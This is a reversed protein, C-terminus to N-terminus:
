RIRLLLDYRKQDNNLEVTGKKKLALFERGDPSSFTERVYGKDVDFSRLYGRKLMDKTKIVTGKVEWCVSEFICAAPKFYIVADIMANGKGAELARDLAEQQNPMQGTLVSRCDRGEFTGMDQAGELSSITKSSIITLAAVRDRSLCGVSLLCLGVALVLLLKRM